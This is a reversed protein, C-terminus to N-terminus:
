KRLIEFWHGDSFQGGIYGIGKGYYEYMHVLSEGGESQYDQKVKVVDNLILGNPLKLEDFFEEISLQFEDGGRDKISWQTGIRLEAPLYVKPPDYGQFEGNQITKEHEIEGNIKIRYVEIMKMILMGYMFSEIKVPIQSSESSVHEEISYRRYMSVQQGDRGRGDIYWSEGPQIRFYDSGKHIPEAEQASSISLLILISLIKINRM